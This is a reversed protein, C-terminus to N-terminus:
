ATVTYQQRHSHHTPPGFRYVGFFGVTDACYGDSPKVLYKILLPEDCCPVARVPLYSDIILDTM